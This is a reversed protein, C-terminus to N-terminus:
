WCSVVTKRCLCSAILVMYLVSPLIAQYTPHVHEFLYLTYEDITLMRIHDALVTFYTAESLSPPVHLMLYLPCLAYDTSIFLYKWCPALTYVTSSVVRDAFKDFHKVTVEKVLDMDSIVYLPQPGFLVSCFHLPVYTSACIFEDASYMCVQRLSFASTHLTSM